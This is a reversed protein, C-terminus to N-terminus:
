ERLSTESPLFAAQLDNLFRKGLDTTRWNGAGAVEVLGRALTAELSDSLLRGPLGTQREFDTTSFTEDLRLVNLMFEFLADASSVLWRSAVVSDKGAQELYERPHAVKAARHIRGDPDTLKQHAGAGLAAYDDYRWYALNHRCVHGDKAYASIEYRRFGADAFRAACREMIEWCIEDDPLQPPRAHFQTNPEITLQYHSVHTAGTELACEVDACAESVSQGPLGYMLDINLRSVGSALVAAVANLTDEATHIRGLTALHRDNFSQAGLSVRTVGATAYGSFQAHEVAGPNAELTIEVDQSIALQASISDLLTGVARPSFLSPTGGGLFISGVERGELGPAMWRLDALLAELYENEPLAGRLSHSNFDCYPCKRVCWPFHVYLALGRTAPGGAPDRIM